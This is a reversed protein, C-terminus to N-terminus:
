AERCASAERLLRVVTEKCLGMISDMGGDLRVIHPQLLPHEVMLGGACYFVEGEEILSDVLSDPITSFTVSARDVAAWQQGSRPDTVVCSGVTSPPNKAYLSIFQRAEEESEPKELITDACVVVQDGTLLLAGEERFRDAHHSELLASAKAKGLAMVLEAPDDFRIAKEDIDPKCVEFKFGLEQLIAKRTASGSGLVLPSSMSFGASTSMSGLFSLVTALRRM